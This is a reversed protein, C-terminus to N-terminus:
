PGYTSEWVAIAATAGANPLSFLPGNHPPLTQIVGSAVLLGSSGTMSGGPGIRFADSLPQVTIAGRFGNSAAIPVGGAASGVFITTAEGQYEPLSRTYPM